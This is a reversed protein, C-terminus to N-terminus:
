DQSQLCAQVLAVIRQWNEDEIPEEADSTDIECYDALELLLQEGRPSPNTLDFTASEQPLFLQADEAPDTDALDEWRELHELGHETARRTYRGLDIPGSCVAIDDGNVLFVVEDGPLEGRITLYSAEGIVIEIPEAGVREWFTESELNSNEESFDGVWKLWSDVRKIAREWSDTITKGLATWEKKGDRGQYSVEESVLYEYEPTNDVLARLSGDDCCDAIRSVMDVVNALASVSVPDPEAAAWEYVADLDYADDGGPRLQDPTLQQVRGWAPHDSLDNEEGGAIFDALERANPYLLIKQGDGLFGQWEEEDEDEWPPAWLTLGTKGNITLTIPIISADLASAM